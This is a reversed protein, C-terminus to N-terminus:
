ASHSYTKSIFVKLLKCTWMNRQSKQLKGYLKLYLIQRSSYVSKHSLNTLPMADFSISGILLVFFLTSFFLFYYDLMNRLVDFYM